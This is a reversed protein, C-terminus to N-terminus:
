ERSTAALRTTPSALKAMTTSGAGTALAAVSVTVIQEPEPENGATTLPTAEPSVMLKETDHEDTEGIVIALVISM